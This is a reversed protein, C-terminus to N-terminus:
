NDRLNIFIQTTRGNPVAFAYAITGRQNSQV